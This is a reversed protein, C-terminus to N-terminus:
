DEPPVADPPTDVWEPFMLRLQGDKRRQVGLKKELAKQAQCGVVVLFQDLPIQGPHAGKPPQFADFQGILYCRGRFRKFEDQFAGLGETKHSKSVTVEFALPDDPHDFVLDVESKKHRWHYLRVGLHQCLANLHSAVMNEVLLGMEAPSQLPGLGRLLAANRVAGDVFYLKKGRRQVSEESPAFNPLLFVIFARELFKVYKEVTADSLGIGAGITGPSMVGAIQGALTYLLRELKVPDQIAFAQPIDKYIAKEIADSRLVRQSRFIYSAEDDTRQSQGRLLLEPFGGTLIFRRREEAVGSVSIRSCSKITAGLLDGCEPRSYKRKSLELFETFLYPTLFQEDWRGAGSEMGYERIAATASSTGVLRVPWREDYFTKLWLDWKAAYTLEDLFLCVPNEATANTNAIITKVLDGLALELLLPHDLRLWWLKRPPIGERILCSVTQYMVTTKGVRRPGLIIQHRRLPPHMLLRWIIDAVPRAVPPALEDPVRGLSHWPNQDEIIARYDSGTPQWEV